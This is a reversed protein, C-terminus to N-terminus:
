QLSRIDRWGENTLVVTARAKQGEKIQEALLLHDQKLLKKAWRSLEYQPEYAVQAVTMGDAVAPETYWNVQKVKETGVCLLAGRPGPIFQSRGQESLRFVTVPLPQGNANLASAKQGDAEKQYIDADVLVDMQKLAVQNITKGTVDETLIRIWEDGFRGEISAQGGDIEASPALPLCVPHDQNYADIARAFQSKGAEQKGSCATLLVLVSILAYKNM